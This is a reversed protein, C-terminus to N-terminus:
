KGKKFPLVECQFGSAGKHGGGGYKKAIESVDITKSYLSVTWVAGDFIVVIQIDHSKEISNFINSGTMGANCVICNYNEFNVEYSFQNALKKYYNDRYEIVTEGKNCYHNILGDGYECNIPFLLNNWVVREPGNNILKIGEQFHRTKNNYKFKWTDYDGLLKITMPTEIAPFFYDWCLECAAKSDDRIGDINLYKHKEIATKHHDIWVVNKTIDLLKEFDGENQLSFDVIYIWEDKKISDFPFKSRYDIQIFEKKHKFIDDKTALKVIAGSSYGDLDTHYFCKM